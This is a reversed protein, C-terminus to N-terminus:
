RQGDCQDYQRHTAGSGVPTVLGGPLDLEFGPAPRGLAGLHYHSPRIKPGVVRRHLLWGSGITAWPFGPGPRGVWDLLRGAFALQGPVFGGLPENVVGSAFRVIFCKPKRYIL